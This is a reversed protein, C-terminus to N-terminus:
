MSLFYEHISADETLEPHFSAALIRGSRVLVPAKEFVSLVEIGNGIRTIEPARIFVGHVIPHQKITTTLNTEFSSIQRGYANRTVTIDLAQLRIQDYGTIEKALMIMGACTGFVSMGSSIREKLLDFMNFAVLLKGMVTSEGGPIILSDVSELDERTRVEMCSVGLSEVMAQHKAFDGQLALVGCKM